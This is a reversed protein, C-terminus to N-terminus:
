ARLIVALDDNAQWKLAGRVGNTFEYNLDHGNWLNDVYGDHAKQQASLNLALTDEVLPIDVQGRVSYADYNGYSADVNGNFDFKPERTVILIAGGTANRGYLTAQPGKLVEVREVGLFNQASQISNPIYV